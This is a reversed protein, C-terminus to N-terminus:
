RAGEHQMAPVEPSTESGTGGCRECEPDASPTPPPALAPLLVTDGGVITTTGIEVSARCIVWGPHDPAPQEDYRIWGDHESAQAVLRAIAYGPCAMIETRGVYIHGRGDADLSLRCRVAVRRIVPAGGPGDGVGEVITIDAGMTIEEM